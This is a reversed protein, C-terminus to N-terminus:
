SNCLHSNKCTDTKIRNENDVKRVQNKFSALTVSSKIHMSFKSWIVPGIYRSDVTNGM